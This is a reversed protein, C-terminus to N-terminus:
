GRGGGDEEHEELNSIRDAVFSMSNAMAEVISNNPVAPTTNHDLVLMGTINMRRCTNKPLDKEYIQLDLHLQNNTKYNQSLHQFM